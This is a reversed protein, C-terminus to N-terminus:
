KAPLFIDDPTALDSKEFQKEYKNIATIKKRVKDFKVTHMIRNDYPYQETIFALSINEGMDEALFSSDIIQVTVQVPIKSIKNISDVRRQEQKFEDPQLVMDFFGETSPKTTEQNDTSTQCSSAGTLISATFLYIILKALM